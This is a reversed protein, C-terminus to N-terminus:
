LGLESEVMTTEAPLYTRWASQFDARYYGRATDDDDTRVTRPHIDFDALLKALKMAPGRTRQQALDREWMQPWPANADEMKVLGELVEITTLREAGKTLFLSRMSSLLKIRDSKTELNQSFAEVVALRAKDPWAGGAMDAIALLPRIMGRQRGDRVDHPMEPKVGALANIAVSEWKSLFSTIHKVEDAIVEPEFPEAMDDSLQRSLRIHISRTATTDPLGRIGTFCKPCFVNFEELDGNRGICRPVKTGVEYGANLVAVVPDDYGKAFYQDIEDMFIVPADKNIKRYLAAESPNIVNWRRPEPPALFRLCNKLQSKGCNSEPSFIYLYPAVPFARYIWSYAAWLACITAQWDDALRMYKCLFVVIADLTDALSQVKSSTAVLIPRSEVSTGAGEGSRPQQEGSLNTEGGGRSDSQPKGNGSTSERAESDTPKGAYAPGVGNPEALVPVTPFPKADLFLNLVTGETMGAKLAENLDKHESSVNCLKMQVDPLAARIDRAWKQGPLDSQPWLYLCGSHNKFRDAILKVHSAGRTAVINNDEGSAESYALADWQSEHVHVNAGEEITGITFLEAPQKPWYRWSGDKKRYHIGSSTPFAICNHGTNDAFVGILGRTSLSEIFNESYGRWTSLKKIQETDLATAKPKEPEVVNGKFIAIADAAIDPKAKAPESGNSLEGYRLIAAATNLGFHKEIVGIEDGSAGCSHCRYFWRSDKQFIGASANKDDHFICRSSKAARDAFGLKGLLEPMPLRRRCEDLNIM